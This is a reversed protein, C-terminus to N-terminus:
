IAEQKEFKTFPTKDGRIINNNTAAEVAVTRSHHHYFAKGGM